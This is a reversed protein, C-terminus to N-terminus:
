KLLVMKQTQVFEGAQLRCLYIGSALGLGDFLVTHTGASQRENALAAVEQGLLNFVRLSVRSSKPLSYAIQTSPNFPNPWNPYLTYEVPLSVTVPEAALEPGTKVLYFDGQGAGFSGTSGAFVYGGDATQQVSWGRDDNSGGYNRTWLTDGQSNTKVVYFDYGGSGFSNTRGVV